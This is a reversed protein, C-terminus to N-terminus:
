MVKFLDGERKKGSPVKRLQVTRDKPTNARAESPLSFIKVGKLFAPFRFGTVRRKTRKFIDTYSSFLHRLIKSVQYDELPGSNLERAWMLCIVVAQKLFYFLANYGRNPLQYPTVLDQLFLHLINKLFSSQSVTLM